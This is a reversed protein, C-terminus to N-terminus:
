LLSCMLSGGYCETVITMRSQVLAFCVMGARKQEVTPKRTEVTMLDWSQSTLGMKNIIEEREGSKLGAPTRYSRRAGKVFFYNLHLARLYSAVHKKFSRYFCCIM